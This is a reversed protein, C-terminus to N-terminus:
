ININLVINKNNEIVLKLSNALHLLYLTLIHSLRQFIGIGYISHYFFLTTLSNSINDENKILSLRLMYIYISIIYIKYCFLKHKSFLILM